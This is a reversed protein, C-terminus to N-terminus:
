GAPSQPGPPECYGDLVKWVRLRGAESAAEAHILEGAVVPVVVCGLARSLLAARRAARKVDDVGIGACVEVVLYEVAGSSRSRGKIVLDASQVERAEEESLKGSEELSDLLSALEEAPLAHIKRLLPAFYSAAREYYRQELQWGKLKGVESSLRVDVGRVHEALEALVRDTHAQAESLQRTQESLASIHMGIEDVRAALRDMLSGVRDVHSGIQDVRAGLQDVRSGLQDVHSALETVSAALRESQAALKEVREALRELLQGMRLFFEDYRSGQERVQEVTAIQAQALADTKEVLVELTQAMRAVQEETRVQADALRAFLVPLAVIEDLLVVARLRSRLEPKEDLLRVLQELDRETFAMTM